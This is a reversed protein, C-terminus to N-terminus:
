VGHSRLWAELAPKSLAGTHEAVQEGDRFLRLAPISQVGHAVALEPEEDVNVLAVKLESNENAITEVVPKFAQCPGCWPAWFDVLVVGQQGGVEAEFTATTPNLTRSEM